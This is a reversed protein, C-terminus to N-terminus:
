PALYVTYRELQRISSLNLVNEETGILLSLVHTSLTVPFVINLVLLLCIARRNKKTSYSM